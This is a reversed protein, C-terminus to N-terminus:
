DLDSLRDHECEAANIMRNRVEEIIYDMAKPYREVAEIILNWMKDDDLLGEVIDPLNDDIYDSVKEDLNM